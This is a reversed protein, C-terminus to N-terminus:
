SYGFNVNGIYYIKRNSLDSDVVKEVYEVKKFIILRKLYWRRDSKKTEEDM